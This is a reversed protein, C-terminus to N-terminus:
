PRRAAVRLTTTRATRTLKAATLEVIEAGDRPSGDGDLAAM